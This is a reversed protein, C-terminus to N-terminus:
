RLVGPPLNIIRIIPALVVVMVVGATALTCWRIVRLSHFLLILLLVPPPLFSNILLRILISCLYTIRVLPNNKCFFVAVVSQHQSETRADTQRGM